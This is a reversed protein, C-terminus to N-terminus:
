GVLASLKLRRLMMQEVANPRPSRLPSAAEFISLRGIVDFNEDPVKWQESTINNTNRNDSPCALGLDVKRFRDM